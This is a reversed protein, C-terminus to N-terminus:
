TGGNVAALLRAAGTEAVDRHQLQLQQQRQQLHAAPKM